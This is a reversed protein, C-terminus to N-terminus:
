VRCHQHEPDPEFGEAGLGGDRLQAEMTGAVGVACAGCSHLAAGSATGAVPAYRASQALAALLQADLRALRAADGADRGQMAGPLSTDVLEFPFVVTRVADAQARPGALVLCAAAIAAPYRM